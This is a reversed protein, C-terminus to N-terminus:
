SVEALTEMGGMIRSGEKVTLFCKQSSLIAFDPLPPLLEECLLQGMVFPAEEDAM